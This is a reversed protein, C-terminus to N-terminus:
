GTTRCTNLTFKVASVLLMATALAVLIAFARTWFGKASVALVATALVALATLGWCPVLAPLSLIVSM